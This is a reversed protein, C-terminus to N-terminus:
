TPPSPIYSSPTVSKPHHHYYFNQHSSMPTTLQCTMNDYPLEALISSTLPPCAFKLWKQSPLPM